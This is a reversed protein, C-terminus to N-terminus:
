SLTFVPFVSVHALPYCMENHKVHHISPRITSVMNDHIVPIGARNEHLFKRIPLCLHWHYERSWDFSHARPCLFGHWHYVALIPSDWYKEHLETSTPQPNSLFWRWTPFAYEHRGGLIWAQVQSNIVILGHTPHIQSILHQLVLRHFSPWYFSFNRM